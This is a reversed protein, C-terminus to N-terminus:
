SLMSGGIHDVVIILLVLGRFFDLEVYRPAPAANM